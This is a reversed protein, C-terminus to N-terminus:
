FGVKSAVPAAAMEYSILDLMIDMIKIPLRKKLKKYQYNLVQGSELQFAVRGSQIGSEYIRVELITQDIGDTYSNNIKWSIDNGIEVLKNLMSKVLEQNEDLLNKM